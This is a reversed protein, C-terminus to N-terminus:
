GIKEPINKGIMKTLTIQQYEPHREAMERIVLQFDVPLKNSQRSIYTIKKKVPLLKFISYVGNLVAAM